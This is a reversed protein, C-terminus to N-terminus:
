PKVMVSMSFHPPEYTSPLLEIPRSAMVSPLASMNM